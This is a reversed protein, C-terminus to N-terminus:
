IEIELEDGELKFGEIKYMKSKELIEKQKQVEKSLQTEKKLIATKPTEKKEVAEEKEKKEEKEKEKEIEGKEFKLWTPFLETRAHPFALAANYEDVFNGDTALDIYTVNLAIEEAKKRANEDILQKYAGDLSGNGIFKYKEREVDPFLGVLIASELDLFNGFGGAIFIKDIEDIKVGTNRLLTRVGAFIAAKTYKLNQLDKESITIDEKTETEDGWVVVYEYVDQGQEEYFKSKRLRKTKEMLKRNFKGYSDIIKNKMLEAILIILGSGCIGKPPENGIVRYIVENGYNNIRLRDIAGKMARMGCKVEGGEFAPGASTACTALWEKNGLVIEGNTGVDIVLCIKEEKFIESIIIDSTIDGGVYSGLGPVCYVDADEAGYSLHVDRGKVIYPKKFNPNDYRGDRIEKPDKKLFLYTMVTNGSVVIKSIKKFKKRESFNKLHSNITSVVANQLAEAGDKNELVYNMRTMVDAGFKVQGNYSGESDVVSGDSLDVLYSAITTTGIDIAVGADGSIQKDVIKVAKGSLVEYKSEISESPVIVEVSVNNKVSVLCSLLYGKSILEQKLAKLLVDKNINLKEQEDLNVIIKCRGCKGRGNCFNSIAIDHKAAISLISENSSIEEDTVVVEKLAEEGKKQIRFLIKSSM